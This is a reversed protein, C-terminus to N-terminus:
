STTGQGSAREVLPVGSTLDASFSFTVTNGSLAGSPILVNALGSLHSYALLWIPVQSEDGTAVVGMNVTGLITTASTASGTVSSPAPTSLGGTGSGGILSLSTLRSGAPMAATLREVLAPWAINGTGDSNIQTLRTQVGSITDSLTSLGSIKSQTLASVAQASALETKTTATRHDQKVTLTALGGLVVAVGAAAFIVKRRAAAARALEPPLLSLRASPPDYTWEAAGVAVLGAAAGRDPGLDRDTRDLGELVDLVSVRGPLRRALQDIVEESRTVGGTLLVDRPAAAGMQDFFFLLSSEIGGALPEIDEPSIAVDSEVSGRLLLEVVAARELHLRGALRAVVGSAGAKLIRSYRIRGAERVTIVTLDAGIDVVAVTEGAASSLRNIARVAAMPALDVAVARLSAAKLAALHGDIVGRHAAALLIQMQGNGTPQGAEVPVIVFDLIADDVPLPILDMAQFTLATRFDSEPMSPVEAQRVIVRSGSVALVVNHSTFGGQSWLQRLATAVAGSDIIEGGSVAGGPLEVEAFHRLAIGRRSRTLEVARVASSGIDLGISSGSGVKRSLTLAM